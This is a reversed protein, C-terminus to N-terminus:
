TNSYVRSNKVSQRLGISFSLKFIAEVKLFVFGFSLNNTDAAVVTIDAGAVMVDVAATIDAEVVMVDREATIDAEETATDITMIIIITIVGIIINGSIALGCVTIGVLDM